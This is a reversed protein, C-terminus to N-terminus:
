AVLLDPRSLERAAVHGDREEIAPFILCLDTHLPSIDLCRRFTFRSIKPQMLIDIRASRFIRRSNRTVTHNHKTEATRFLTSSRTRRPLYISEPPDLFRTVPFGRLVVNQTVLM